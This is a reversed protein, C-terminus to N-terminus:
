GGPTLTVSGPGSDSVSATVIGISLASVISLSLVVISTTLLAVSRRRQRALRVSVWVLLAIAGILAIPSFVVCGSAVVSAVLLWRDTAGARTRAVPPASM